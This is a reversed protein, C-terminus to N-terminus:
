ASDWRRESWFISDGNHSSLDKSSTTAGLFLMKEALCPDQSSVRPQNNIIEKTGSSAPQADAHV